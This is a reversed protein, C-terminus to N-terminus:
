KESQMTAEILLAKAEDIKGSKALECFKVSNPDAPNAKLKNQKVIQKILGNFDNYPYGEVDCMVCDTHLTNELGEVNRESSWAVASVIANPDKHIRFGTSYRHMDLNNIKEGNAQLYSKSLIENKHSNAIVASDEIMGTPDKHKEAWEQDVYDDKASYKGYKIIAGPRDIHHYVNPRWIDKVGLYYEGNENPVLEIEIGQNWKAYNIFEQVTKVHMPLPFADYTVKELEVPDDPVVPLFSIGKGKFNDAEKPNFLESPRARLVENLDTKDLPHQIRYIKERIEDQRGLWLNWDQYDRGQPPQNKLNELEAELSKIKEKNSEEKSSSIASGASAAIAGGIIAGGAVGVLKKVVETGTKVLSKEGGKFNPSTSYFHNSSVQM